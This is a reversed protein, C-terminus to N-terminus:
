KINNVLNVLENVLKTTNNYASEKILSWKKCGWTTNNDGSALVKTTLKSFSIPGGPANENGNHNYDSFVYVLKDNKIVTLIKFSITGNARADKPTKFGDYFPITFTGNITKASRSEFDIKKKVVLDPNTFWNKINDFIEDINKNSVDLSDSFILETYEGRVFRLVKESIIFQTSSVNNIHLKYRVSYWDNDIITCIIKNGDKLFITDIDQIQSFISLPFFLGVIFFSKKM